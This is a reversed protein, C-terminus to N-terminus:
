RYVDKRNDIDLVIVQQPNSRIIYLIRYDGSRQRYITEDDQTKIGKLPKSGQPHADLILAKAKKILQARIKFPFRALSNLAANTIVLGTLPSM